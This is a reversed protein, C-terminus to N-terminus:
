QPGSHLGHRDPLGNAWQGFHALQYRYVPIFIFCFM